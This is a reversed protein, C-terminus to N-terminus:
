LILYSNFIIVEVFVVHPMLAKTDKSCTEWDLEPSLIPKDSRFLVRKPDNKDLIVYGVLCNVM